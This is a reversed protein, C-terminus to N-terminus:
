PGPRDTPRRHDGPGDFLDHIFHVIKGFISGGSVAEIEEDTLVRTEPSTQENQM